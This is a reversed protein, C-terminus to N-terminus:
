SDPQLLQVTLTEALSLEISGMCFWVFGHSASYITVQVKTQLFSLNQFKIRPSNIMPPTSPLYRAQNSQEISKRANNENAGGKDNLPSPPNISRYISLSLINWYVLRTRCSVSHMNNNKLVVWLGPTQCLPRARLFHFLRPLFRLCALTSSLM